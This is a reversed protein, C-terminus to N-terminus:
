SISECSTKLKIPIEYLTEYSDKIVEGNSDSQAGRRIVKLTLQTGMVTPKVFWYGNADNNENPYVKYDNGLEDSLLFTYDDEIHGIDACDIFLTVYLASELVKEITIRHEAFDYTQGIQWSRDTFCSEPTFRSTFGEGGEEYLLRVTLEKGILERGDIGDLDICYIDTSEAPNAELDDPYTQTHLGNTYESQCLVNDGETILFYWPLFYTHFSGDQAEELGSWNFTYSLLLHHNELIASNLTGVVGNCEQTDNIHVAYKAEVEDFNQIVSQKENEFIASFYGIAPISALSVTGLLMVLAAALVVTLRVKLHGHNRAGTRANMYELIYREDVNGMMDLLYEEPKKNM